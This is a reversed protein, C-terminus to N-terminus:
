HTVYLSQPAYITGEAVATLVSSRKLSWRRAQGRLTGKQFAFQYLNGKWIWACYASKEDIESAFGRHAPRLM